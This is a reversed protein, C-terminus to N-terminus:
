VRGSDSTLGLKVGMEPFDSKFRAKRRDIGNVEIPYCRELIRNYIRARGSDQPKSIEEITLNTTVIFPLGSCYRANVINFVQEQMYESQREAGLDDLVLLSYKSLSDIYSQKGEYMGQLQNSLRAFNTVLVRRGTDILANAICSAYFTKGTGNAGHLLLGKGAERFEDFGDAYRKMANSLKPQKLDDADFTWRIMDSGEFCDHRNREIMEQREREKEAAMEAKVCACICRVTKDEGFINIRCQVAEGCESCHLLGDDALYEARPTPARADAKQIINAVLDNLQTM